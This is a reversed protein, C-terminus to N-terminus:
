DHLRREGLGRAGACSAYPAGSPLGAFGNDVTGNCDNDVSDCLERAPLTEGACTSGWSGASCTQTGPRCAGVGSTGAPGTYCSRTLSEDTM